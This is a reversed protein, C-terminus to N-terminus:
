LYSREEFIKDLTDLFTQCEEITNYFYPSVRYLMRHESPLRPGTWGQGFLKNLYSHVCFAGDRIMVNSREDLEEVVGVANPRELALTLIGGREAADRPGLIRLWGRGGYRQLLQETLFANLEAVHAGIRDMGIRQLYQITTGSAIQGPYNQIGVEFSEPPELTSYSDYTADRVTGGGLMTPEVVRTGGESRPELGLLERKGYLIGVGRPGCMKHMSFAMFDVDLDQVDVTRHPVTQAADLLVKAGHDHAVRIVEKAPITCGTLNSTYAMSVLRVRESELKRKLGELDFSDDESSEL